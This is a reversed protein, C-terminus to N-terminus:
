VYQNITRFVKLKQKTASTESDWKVEILDLYLLINYKINIVTLLMDTNSWCVEIRICSILKIHINGLERSGLILELWNGEM